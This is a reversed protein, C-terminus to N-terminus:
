ITPLEFCYLNSRYTVLMDIGVNKYSSAIGIGIGVTGILGIKETIFDLIEALSNSFDLVQKMDDRDFLNQAIGTGTERLRNLKFDISDMAATMETEANGASNAMDNMAKEAASFNEIVSKGIDARLEGFIVEATEDRTKDTLDDWVESIEKLIQYTSKYASEDQMVSVGTLDYLDDKITQLSKDLEHTEENLGILRLAATKFGDGVNQDKVIDFAAAELAITEELTNNGEAMASVSDLLMATIDSNSIAFNKGVINIKSIIGDLVDDASMEYATMISMLGSEATESTMGPSILKFLSSLKAMQAASEATNFGLRSWAAAQTLIENTTVGLQKAADNSSYYFDELEKATANTTRKLDVLSTDLEHVKSPM